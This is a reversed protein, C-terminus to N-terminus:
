HELEVFNESDVSSCIAHAIKIAAVGDFGSCRPKRGTQLCQVIDEVAHLLNDRMVDTFTDVLYLSNYGSYYPSEAVRYIEIIHGSEKIYVRGKSGLIDMEFISFKTTDCAHLYANTGTKFEIYADYTPDDSKEKLNDFGKVRLFEGILLRALDFWHTGNHFTGKTYYGNVTRIDGFADSYLYNKLENFKKAYRRSYNVAILVGHQEALDVLKEAENVTMALPKEAFIAKVNSTMLITRIIDFHTRDPTCISVIDPEIESLMKRYDTFNHLINWRNKCRESKEPESDCVAVLETDPCHVYAGAHTYIDKIRPDDAFESGIKGCGIIAARYVM